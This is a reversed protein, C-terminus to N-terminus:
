QPRMPFQELWKIGTKIEQGGSSIALWGAVATLLADMQIQSQSSGGSYPMQNRTKHAPHIGLTRPTYVAQESLTNKTYVSHISRTFWSYAHKYIRFESLKSLKTLFDAIFRSPGTKKEEAGTLTAPSSLVIMAM